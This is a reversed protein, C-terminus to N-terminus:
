PRIEDWRNISVGAGGGSLHRLVIQSKPSLRAWNHSVTTPPGSCAHWPHHSCASIVKILQLEDLAAYTVLALPTQVGLPRLHMVNSFFSRGVSKLMTKDPLQLTAAM